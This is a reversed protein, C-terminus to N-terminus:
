LFISKLLIKQPDESVMKFASKWSDSPMFSLSKKIFKLKSKQNKAWFHRLGHTFPTKLNWNKKRLRELLNGAPTLSLVDFYGVHVHTVAAKHIAVCKVNLDVFLEWTKETYRM